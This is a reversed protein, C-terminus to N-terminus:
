GIPGIASVARSVCAYCYTYGGIYFGIVRSDRVVPIRSITGGCEVCPSLGTNRLDHSRNNRDVGGRENRGRRNEDKGTGCFDRNGVSRSEDRETGRAVPEGTARLGRDLDSREPAGRRLKLAQPDPQSEIKRRKFTENRREIEHCWGRVTVLSSVAQGYAERYADTDTEDPSVMRVLSEAVAVHEILGRIRDRRLFGWTFSTPNGRTDRQKEAM